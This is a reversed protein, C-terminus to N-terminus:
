NVRDAALQALPTSLPRLSTVKGGTIGACHYRLSCTFMHIAPQVSSQNHSRRPIALRTKEAFKFDSSSFGTFEVSQLFRIIFTSSRKQPIPPNDSPKASSPNEIVPYSIWGRTGSIKLILLIPFATTASRLVESAMRGSSLSTCMTM